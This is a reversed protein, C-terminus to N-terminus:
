TSALTLRDLETYVAGKPRLESKYLLIAESQFGGGGKNRPSAATGAAAAVNGAAALIARAEELLGAEFSEGPGPCGPGPKAPRRALTIHARFARGDPWEPNLAQLGAREAERALAANVLRYVTALEDEPRRGKRRPAGSAARPAGAPDEPGAALPSEVEAALVRWPGRPPFQVLRPLALEIAELGILSGLAARAAQLGAPGQEGLFALTLHYDEPRVWALGPWRGRLPAAARDLAERAAAPLTLAVFCRM